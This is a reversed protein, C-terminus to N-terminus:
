KDINKKNNPSMQIFGVAEKLATRAYIMILYIENDEM